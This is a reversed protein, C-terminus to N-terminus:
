AQSAAVERLYAGYDSRGCADALRELATRDIFGMNFAVEEPCGIKFGQRQELTQVFSSAEMLSDPTGADLWAFGRGLFHVALEGREFYARNIDTIELEGRASPTLSRAIDAVADDYFYLGAVAWNSRPTAPKEELGVIRDDKDFEVVGYRAPNRVRYAFITAGAESARVESLADRLGQGFFINDGLILACRSGAIFREGILFAQPLGAPEPQRAYEIALGLQSGDGLLRQFLPLADATAILLIERVGALMLTSLAYYVMPKDYVPLLQKSVVQTMPFLRSGAGGALIIGKM